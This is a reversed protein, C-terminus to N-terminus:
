LVNDFLFFHQYLWKRMLNVVQHIGDTEGMLGVAVAVAEHLHIRHSGSNSRVEWLLDEKQVADQYEKDELYVGSWSEVKRKIETM